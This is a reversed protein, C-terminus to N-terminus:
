VHGVHRGLRDLLGLWRQDGRCNYALDANYSRLSCLIHDHMRWTTQRM